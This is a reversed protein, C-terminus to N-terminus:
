QEAGTVVFAGCNNQNAYYNAVETPSLARSYIRTEDMLGNFGYGGGTQSGIIADASNSASLSLTNTDPANKTKASGDGYFIVGADKQSGDYTLGILHLANDNCTYHGFTNSQLENVGFSTGGNIQFYISGTVFLSWGKATHAMNAGKGVLVRAGSGSFKTWVLVTMPTAGTFDLASVNGADLNASGGFAVGNKVKGAISTASTNIFTSQNSTSDLASGTGEELHAVLKAASEWVAYKGYPDTPAPETLASNGYTVYFATGGSTGIFLSGLHNTYDFGSVERPVPTVGDQKFVRIDGGDSRVHSWFGAPALSLDYYLDTNIATPTILFRYTKKRGGFLM